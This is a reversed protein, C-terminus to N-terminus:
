YLYLKIRAVKNPSNVFLESLILPSIGNNKTRYAVIKKADEFTLYPVQALEDVSSSNIDIREITAPSQIEFYRFLRHVVASDLGYVEYCQEPISFGSLYNRYSIIRKSLIPGIGSIQELAAAQVSNIDQKKISGRKKSVSQQNPFRLSSSLLHKLSDSIGTVEQFDALSNVYHGAARHLKLRDIADLPIGLRYANYDNLYNTNYSYIKASSTQKQERLSDLKKQYYMTQSLDLVISERDNVILQLVLIFLLGLLLILLAGRQSKSLVFPFRSYM